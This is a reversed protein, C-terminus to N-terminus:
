EDDAYLKAELDEIITEWDKGLEMPKSVPNITMIIKMAKVARLHLLMPMLSNSPHEMILPTYYEKLCARLTAYKPPTLYAARVNADTKGHKKIQRALNEFLAVHHNITHLMEERTAGKPVSYGYYRTGDDNEYLIAVAKICKKRKVIMAAM